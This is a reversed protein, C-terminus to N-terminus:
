SHQEKITVCKVRFGRDYCHRWRQMEANPLFSERAGKASLAFCNLFGVGPEYITWWTEEM